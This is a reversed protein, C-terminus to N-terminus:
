ADISGYLRMLTVCTINSSDCHKKIACVRFILRSTVEYLGAKGMHADPVLIYRHVMPVEPVGRVGQVAHGLGHVALLPQAVGGAAARASILAGAAFLVGHHGEEFGDELLDDHSSFGHLQELVQVTFFGLLSVTGGSTVSGHNLARACASSSSSSSSSIDHSGM